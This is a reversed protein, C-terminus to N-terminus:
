RPREQFGSTQFSSKKNAHLGQATIHKVLKFINLMEVLDKICRFDPFTKNLIHASSLNELAFLSDAYSKDWQNQFSFQSSSKLSGFSLRAIVM